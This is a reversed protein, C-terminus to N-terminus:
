ENKEEKSNNTSKSSNNPNMNCHGNITAGAEISIIKATIDGIIQATHLIELKEEITVNGKIIGAIKANQASINANIKATDGIELDKSTSLSGKIEGYVSINEEGQFDGEIKVSTGIITENNNPTTKETNKNFM